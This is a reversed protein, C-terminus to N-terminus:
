PKKLLHFQASSKLKPHGFKDFYEKLEKKEEAFSLQYNWNKDGKITEFKNKAALHEVWKSLEANTFDLFLFLAGSKAKSFLHQFFVEAQDKRQFIESLFWSFIFVDSMTLKKLSEWDEAKTVDVKLFTKSLKNTADAINDIEAWSDAWTAEGDVLHFSTTCKRESKELYKIVGLMESGPGGGVCTISVYDKDFVARLDKSDRIIQWIMDAHATTYVCIYAFRTEPKKYDPGGKALVNGYAAQLAAIAAKIQKDRNDNSAAEIYSYQEDLVKKIVPFIEM